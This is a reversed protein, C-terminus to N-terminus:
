PAPTAKPLSFYISVNVPVVINYTSLEGLAEVPVGRGLALLAQLVARDALGGDDPVKQLADAGLLVAHVNQFLYFLRFM